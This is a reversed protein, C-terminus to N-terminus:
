TAGADAAPELAFRLAFHDLMEPLPRAPDIRPEVLRV